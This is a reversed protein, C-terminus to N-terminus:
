FASGGKLMRNAGRWTDIEPIMGAPEKPPRKLWM